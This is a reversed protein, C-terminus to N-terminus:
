ATATTTSRWSPPTATSSSATASGWPNVDYALDAVFFAVRGLCEPPKKFITVEDIVLLSVHSGIAHIGVPVGISTCCVMDCALEIIQRDTVLILSMVPDVSSTTLTHFNEM